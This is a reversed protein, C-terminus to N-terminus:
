PGTRQDPPHFDVVRGRWNAEGVSSVYGGLRYRLSQAFRPSGTPWFSIMDVGAERALEVARDIMEKTDNWRFLVYKWEIMPLKKGLRTREAVLKKMNQYPLEFESGIQYLGVAKNTAGDISIAVYNMELAAARKEDSDLLTGNTSTYIELDPNYKRLIEVEKRINKSLFPEGLKFLSINKIGHEQLLRAVNEIDQLSMQRRGWVKAISDRDCSTCSLNCASTNEVMIGLHPMVYEKARRAAEVKDVRTLEPCRACIPIPLEGAALRDRFDQAVPGTLVEKLTQRTLDGLRGSGDQDECTCSVTMDSNISLNYSSEGNLAKCYYRVDQIVDLARRAGNLAEGPVFTKVISSLTM